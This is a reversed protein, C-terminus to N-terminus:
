FGGGTTMYIILGAAAVGAWGVLTTFLWGPGPGMDYSLVLVASQVLYIIGAGIIIYSLPGM